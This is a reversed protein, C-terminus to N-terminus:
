STWADGSWPTRFARHLCPRPDTTPSPSTSFSQAMRTGGPGCNCCRNKAAQTTVRKSTCTTTAVPPGSSWSPCAPADPFSRGNTDADRVEQRISNYDLHWYKQNTNNADGVFLTLGNYLSTPGVLSLTVTGGRNTLVFPGDPAPLDDVIDIGTHFYPSGGYQQFEGGSNGIPHRVTRPELPWNGCGVLAFVLGVPFLATAILSTMREM